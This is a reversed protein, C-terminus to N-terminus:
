LKPATVMISFSRLLFDFAPFATAAPLHHHAWSQGRLSTFPTTPQLKGVKFKQAVDTQKMWFLQRSHSDVQLRRATQSAAEAVFTSQTPNVQGRM